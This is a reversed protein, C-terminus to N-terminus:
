RHNAGFRFFIQLGPKRRYTKSHPNNVEKYIRKGNLRSNDFSGRMDDRDFGDRKNVENGSRRDNSNWDRSNSYPISGYEHDTGYKKQNGQVWSQNGSGSNSNYDRHHGDQAFAATLLGLSIVLTFFKKMKNLKITTTRGRKRFGAFSIRKM